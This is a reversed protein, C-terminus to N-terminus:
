AAVFCYTLWAFATLLAVLGLMKGRRPQPDSLGIMSFLIALPALLAIWPFVTRRTLVAEGMERVLGLETVVMLTSAILTLQFGTWCSWSWSRDVAATTTPKSPSSSARIRQNNPRPSRARRRLLVGWVALYTFMCGLVWGARRPDYPQCWWAAGIALLIGWVVLAAMIWAVRPAALPAAPEPHPTKIPKPPANPKAM